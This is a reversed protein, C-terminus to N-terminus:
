LAYIKQNSSSLQVGHRLTVPSLAPIHRGTKLFDLYPIVALPVEVLDKGTFLWIKQEVIAMQLEQLFAQLESVEQDLPEGGMIFINKVIWQNVRLKNGIETM